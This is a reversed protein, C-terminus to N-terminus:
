SNLPTPELIASISAFTVSAPPDFFNLIYSVTSATYQWLAINKHSRIYMFEQKSEKEPIGM